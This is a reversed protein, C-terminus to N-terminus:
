KKEAPTEASESEEIPVEQMDCISFDEFLGRIRRDIKKKERFLKKDFTVLLKNELEQRSVILKLIEDKAGECTLVEPEESPQEEVPKVKEEKKVSDEVM